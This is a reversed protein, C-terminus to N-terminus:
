EFLQRNEQIFTQIDTAPLGGIEEVVNNTGSFIGNEYDIAVERLHQAREENPGLRSSAAKAFEEFSVAEYRMPRGLAIGIQRAIEPHDMEVPGFLQYTKGRHPEPNQLIASIVRAQDSVAIPAHKGKRFPFRFIGSKVMEPYYLFWEAFFTPRLHTTAIGTRDLLREAIWHNQAAHSKADERASIQSMNVLAEVGADMAAQAFYATAEILGATLPFVLYARKVGKTAERLSDFDLLDGTVVEAGLRELEKSSEDERRVLARVSLGRELLLKTTARGTHGAAATILIKDM